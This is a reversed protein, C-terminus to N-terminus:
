PSIIQAHLSLYCIEGRRELKLALMYPWDVVQHIHCVLIAREFHSESNLVTRLINLIRQMYCIFWYLFIM